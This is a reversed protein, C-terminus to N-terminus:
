LLALLHEFLSQRRPLVSVIRSNSATVVSKCIVLRVFRYKMETHIKNDILLQNRKM